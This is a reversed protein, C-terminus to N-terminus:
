ALGREIELDGAGVQAAAGLAHGRAGPLVDHVFDGLELLAFGLDAPQRRDLVLSEVHDAMNAQQFRLGVVDQKNQVLTGNRRVGLQAADVVKGQVHIPQRPRDQRFLAPRIHLVLLLPGDRPRLMFGDDGALQIGHPFREILQRPVQACGLGVDGEEFGFIDLPLVPHNGKCSLLGAGDGDHAKILFNRGDEVRQGIRPRQKGVQAPNAGAVAGGLELLPTRPQLDLAHREMGVAVGPGLPGFFRAVGLAEGLLGQAVVTLGNM